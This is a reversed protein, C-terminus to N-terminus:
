IGRDTIIEAARQIAEPTDLEGAAILRKAEAVAQVDVDQAQRVQRVYEQPPASLVVEDGSPRAVPAKHTGSTEARRLKEQAAAEYMDLGSTSNIKM